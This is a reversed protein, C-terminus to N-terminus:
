VLRPGYPMGLATFVARDFVQPGYTTWNADLWHFACPSRRKAPRNRETLRIGNAQMISQIAQCVALVNILSINPYGLGVLRAYSISKTKFPYHDFPDPMMRKSDAGHGKRVKNRRPAPPGAPRQASEPLGIPLAPVAPPSDFVHLTACEPIFDAWLDFLPDAGGSFLCYSDDDSLDASFQAFPDGEPFYM